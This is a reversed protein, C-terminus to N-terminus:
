REEMLRQVYPIPGSSKSFLETALREAWLVTKKLYEQGSHSVLFEQGKSTRGSYFMAFERLHKYVDTDDCPHQPHQVSAVDMRMEHTLENGDLDTFTLKVGTKTYGYPTQDRVAIGRLASNIRTVVDAGEFVEKLHDGAESWLIEAKSISLCQTSLMPIETETKPEHM